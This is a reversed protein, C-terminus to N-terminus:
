KTLEFPDLNIVEEDGTVLQREEPDLVIRV